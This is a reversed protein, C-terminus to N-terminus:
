RLRFPTFDAAATLGWVAADLRDPSDALGPVWNTFEDELAELDASLSHHCRGQEYMTAIPEARTRKGKSAHVGVYNCEPWVARLMGEILDGGRNTEAVVADAQFEEALLKAARAWDGPESRMSRDALVVFHDRLRDPRMEKAEYDWGLWQEADPPQHALKGIATIGTLDSDHEDGKERSHDTIAADISVVVLELQKQTPAAIRFGPRSFWERHWLAGDVDDLLEAMLEQRGQKTGEFQQVLGLYAASLNALNEYTTM